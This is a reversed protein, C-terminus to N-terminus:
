ARQRVEGCAMALSVAWGIFTWGLLLDLVLITGFNHHNRRSAVIAPLFYLGILISSLILYWM